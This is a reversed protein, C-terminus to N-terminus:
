KSFIKNIKIRIKNYITKELYNIKNKLIQNEILNKDFTKEQDINQLLKKNILKLRYLMKNGINEISLNELIFKSANIEITTTNNEYVFIMQQAAHIINPEAMVYGKKLIGCDENLKMYDHKILFSNNVNMYDLNGSYGTAIVPKGFYMAEAMTLGFGEARHLSILSNCNKILGEIKIQSFDEDILIINSNAKVAVEFLKILKKNKHLNFTKIILKINENKKDFAKNFADITGFPNKRETTSISDFINLFIFNKDNLGFDSRNLNNEKISNIPHMFRIVPITAISSFAEVCFNSPVWIEDFVELYILIEEPIELFEWAWYAINYKNKLVENTITKFFDNLDNLNIQFLNIKFDNKKDSNYEHYVNDKKIIRNEFYYNHFEIEVGANKLAMANQRSAQSIGSSNKFFGHFNIGM